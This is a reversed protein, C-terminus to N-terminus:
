NQVQEELMAKRFDKLKRRSLPAEAGSKFTVVHSEGAGGARISAVQRPNVMTSRHSAIFGSGLLVDKLSQLSQRALLLGDHLHFEVYNGSAQVWEIQDIEILRVRGRDRVEIRSQRNISVSSRPKLVSILGVAVAFALIWIPAQGLMVEGYSYLVDGVQGGPPAHMYRLIITLLMLHLCAFTAGVIILEISARRWTSSNLSIPDNPTRWWVLRPVAIWVAFFFGMLLIQQTVTVNPARLAPYTSISIAEFAFFAGPILGALVWKRLGWEDPHSVAQIFDRGM